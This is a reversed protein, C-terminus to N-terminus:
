SGTVRNMRSPNISRLAFRAGTSRRVATAAAGALGAARDERLRASASRFANSNRLRNLLRNM